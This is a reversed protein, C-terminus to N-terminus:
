TAKSGAFIELFRSAIRKVQRDSFVKYRYKPVLVIHHSRVMAM